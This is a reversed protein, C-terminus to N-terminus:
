VARFHLRASSRQSLYPARVRARAVEAAVAVKWRTPLQEARQAAVVVMRIAVRLLGWHVVHAVCLCALVLM